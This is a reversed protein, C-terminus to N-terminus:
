SKEAVSKGARGGEVLEDRMRVLGVEGTGGPLFDVGM